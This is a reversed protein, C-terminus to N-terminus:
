APQSPADAASVNEPIHGAFRAQCIGKRERNKHCIENHFPRLGRRLFENMFAGTKFGNVSTFLLHYFDM